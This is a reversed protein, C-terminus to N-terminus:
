ESRLHLHISGAQEIQSGAQFHVGKSGAQDIELVLFQRRLYM